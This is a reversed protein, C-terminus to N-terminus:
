MRCQFPLFHSRTDLGLAPPGPRSLKRLPTPAVDARLAKATPVAAPPRPSLVRMRRHLPVLHTRTALGSRPVLSSRFPTAALEGVSTHATPVKLPATRM